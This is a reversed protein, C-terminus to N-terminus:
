REGCPPSLHPQMRHQVAIGSVSRRDAAPLELVSRAARDEPDQRHRYAPDRRRVRRRGADVMQRDQRRMFQSSKTAPARDADPKCCARGAAAARGMESSPVGIVAAEAVAPHGVALNELDISSIWEGGSKIVDKSRDTIQMYGDRTSPPSTAPPSGATRAALIAAMARSTASAVIWRAACWAPRGFTKGDRPLESATRRRRDENGRRLHPRGQKAQLM